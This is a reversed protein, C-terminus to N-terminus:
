VLWHINSHAEQGAPISPALQYRITLTIPLMYMPIRLLYTSQGLPSLVLPALSCVSVNLVDERLIGSFSITVPRPEMALLKEYLIVPPFLIYVPLSSFISTCVGGNGFPWKVM